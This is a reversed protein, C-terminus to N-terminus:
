DMRSGSYAEFGYKILVAAAAAAGRELTDINQIRMKSPNWMQYAGDYNKEFGLAEFVKREARGAKTNGKHKPYINTWAFGCAFQDRGGLKEQFFKEAAEAAATMMEERIVSLEDATYSTVDVAVTQTNM